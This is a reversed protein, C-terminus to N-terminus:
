PTAKRAFHVTSRPGTGEPGEDEWRVLLDSLGDGNIDAVAVHAQVPVAIKAAPDREFGAWGHALRIELETANRRCALDRFGDGNFDGTLNVLEGAQYRALMPGPSVPPAEIELSLECVLEEGGFRGDAQPLIRITHPIIKSSLYQNISERLGLEFFGTSEVIMDQDGDSDFDVFSAYPRFNHFTTAREIQFTKGGDLSAWTEHVPMPVPAVDSIVWHSGGYDPIADGNLFCPRVHEPLEESTFSATGSVVFQGADDLKLSLDDRRFRARGEAGELDIIVALAYEMLLLRCSMRQEPLVLQRDAPPWITQPGSRNVVTTPFVALMGAREYRAEGRRYLHVGDTDLDVLEPIQDGDLDCTFRRFVPVAGGAGVPSFSIDDGPRELSQELAPNWRGDTWTYVKLSAPGRYYLQGGFLDAETAGDCPPLPARRSEPFQGGEQLNAYEPLILDLAGDGDLDAQLYNTTPQGTFPTVPGVRVGPLPQAELTIQGLALLAVLTLM